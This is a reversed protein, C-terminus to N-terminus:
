ELVQAVYTDLHTVPWIKSIPYITTLLVHHSPSKRSKRDARSATAKETGDQCIEGERTNVKERDRM